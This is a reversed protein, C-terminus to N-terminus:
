RGRGPLAQFLCKRGSVKSIIGVHFLIPMGLEEARAYVPFFSEDDYNKVPSIAKLGTFGKEKLRTVEGAGKTLDIFGFPIYMGPYRRACMVVEEEDAFPIGDSACPCHMLWAQELLGNSAIEDMLAWDVGHILHAHTDIFPKM